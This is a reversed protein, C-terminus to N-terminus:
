KGRRFLLAPKLTYVYREVRGIFIIHGGGYHRYEDRVRFMPPTAFACGGIRL